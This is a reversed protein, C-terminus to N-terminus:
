EEREVYWEQAREECGKFYEQVGIACALGLGFPVMAFPGLWGFNAVLAVVAVGGGILKRNM